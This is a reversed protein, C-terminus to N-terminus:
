NHLDEKKIWTLEQTNLQSEGVLWFICALWHALLIISLIIKLLKYMIETSDRQIIDEIKKLLRNLKLVKLLKLISLIM